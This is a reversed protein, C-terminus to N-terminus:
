RLSKKSVKKEQQERRVESILADIERMSLRDLGKQKAEARIEKLWKPSPAITKIYDRVGMIIVQPEGRKRVVFRVQNEKAQRMIEGFQTRATLASVVKQM